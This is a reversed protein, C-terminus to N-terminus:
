PAAHGLDGGPTSWHKLFIRLNIAEHPSGQELILNIQNTGHNQETTIM